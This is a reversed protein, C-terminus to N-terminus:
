EFAQEDLLGSGSTMETDIVDDIENSIEGPVQDVMGEEIDEQIEKDVNEPIPIVLTDGEALAMKYNELVDETYGSAILLTFYEQHMTAIIENRRSNANFLREEVDILEMINVTGLALNQRNLRQLEEHATIEDNVAELAIKSSTISNFSQDIQRFVDRELQVREAELERLQAEARRVGGRREGGNYFTYNVLLKAAAKLRADSPEGEDEIYSGSLEVNVTPMYQGKASRVKLRTADVNKQNTVFGSNFAAGNELYEEIDLLNFHSFEEPSNAIFKALGPVLYELESFSNNLSATAESEAGRASAVRARAFDVELKSTAGAQFMSDLDDVLEEMTAVFDGAQGLEVQYRWYDVYHVALEIFLEEVTIQSDAEAADILSNSRRFSSKSTGGDFLMQTLSVRVNKGPSNIGPDDNGKDENYEPGLSSTLAITPFRYAGIQNSQQVAQEIREEAMVIGPNDGFAKRLLEEFPISELPQEALVIKPVLPKPLEPDISQASLESGSDIGTHEMAVGMVPVDDTLIRQAEDSSIPDSLGADAEMALLSDPTAQPAIGAAAELAHLAQLDASDTTTDIGSVMPVENQVLTRQQAKTNVKDKSQARIRDKLSSKSRKQRNENLAFQSEPKAIRVTRISNTQTSVSPKALEVENYKVSRADTKAAVSAGAKAKSRKNSDVAVHADDVVDKKSVIVTKQSKAEVQKNPSQEVPVIQNNVTNDADELTNGLKNLDALEPTDANKLPDNVTTIRETNEIETTLEKASTSSPEGEIIGADILSQTPDILLPAAADAMSQQTDAESSDVVSNAAALTPQKDDVGVNNENSGDAFEVKEVSVDAPLVGKEAREAQEEEADVKDVPRSKEGTSDSESNGNLVFLLEPDLIGAPDVLRPLEEDNDSEASNVFGTVGVSGVMLAVAIAIEKRAFRHVSRTNLKNM